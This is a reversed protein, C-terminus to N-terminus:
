ARVAGVVLRPAQLRPDAAGVAVDLREVRQVPRGGGDAPRQDRDQLVVLLRVARDLQGSASCGYRGPAPGPGRRRLTSRPARERARNLSRVPWERTGVPHEISARGYRGSRRAPTGRHGSGRLVVEGGDRRVSGCVTDWVGTTGGIGREGAAVRERDDPHVIGNSSGPSAVLEEPTYGLLETVQPGIYLYRERGSAPDLSITWPVAPMGELVASTSHLTARLELEDEKRETIDQLMGQFRSARGQDDRSVLWGEDRIWVIAGDGTIM